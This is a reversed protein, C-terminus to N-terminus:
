KAGGRGVRRIGGRQVGVPRAAAGSVQGKEQATGRNSQPSTGGNEYSQIDPRDVSRAVGGTGPGVDGGTAQPTEYPRGCCPCHTLNTPGLVIISQEVATKYRGPDYQTIGNQELASILKKLLLGLTAQMWGRKTYIREVFAADNASVNVSTKTIHDGPAILELAYPNILDQDNTM